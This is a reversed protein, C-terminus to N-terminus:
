HDNEVIEEASNLRTSKLNQQRCDTPIEESVSIRAPL